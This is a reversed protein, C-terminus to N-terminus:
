DSGAFKRRSQDRRGQLLGNGSMKFRAVYFGEESEIPSETLGFFACLKECVIQKQKQASPQGTPMRGGCRAFAQLWAWQVNSKGSAKKTMGLEAPTIARSFGPASVRMVGTTDFEVLVDKWRAGVLLQVQPVAVEGDACGALAGVPERFLETAPLRPVLTRRSDWIVVDDLGLGVVSHSRLFSWVGADIADVVPVLLVKPGPPSIVTDFYFVPEPPDTRPFALFVPFGRGASIEYRGLRLMRERPFSDPADQLGFARVLARGLKSTDIELIAIEDRAVPLHDCRPPVDGCEARLRGDTLKVVRRTCGTESSKLCVLEEAVQGSRRLLAAAAAWQDGLQRVWELQPAAAGTFEDLAQWLRTTRM